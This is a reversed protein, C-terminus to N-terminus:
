EALASITTSLSELLTSMLLQIRPFDPLPTYSQQNLYLSRCVEIQLTHIGQGPKGYHRTVYGGAYPDNRRVRYGREQLFREVARSLMPHCSTGHADGLIFHPNLAATHLSAEESPMSHCDLLVCYDHANRVESILGALAGHYPHWCSRIRDEAEAFSLKDSYIPMGSSVLKAITGFGASIRPTNTNCWPPLKESFMTPDLEWPERNVDCYARPFDAALLPVGHASAGALLEDVLCDESRRIARPDLRSTSLFHAPYARGSHPSAVILPIM